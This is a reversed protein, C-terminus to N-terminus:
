FSPITWFGCNNTPPGTGGVANVIDAVYDPGLGKNQYAHDSWRGDPIVWTVQHLNCNQLDNLFPALNSHSEVVVDPEPTSGWHAGNCSGDPGTSHCIHSIANPATWISAAQDGYYRWSVNNADLLDTLTAHDYCPYKCHPDNPNATCDAEVKQPDILTALVSSSAICGTDENNGKGNPAGVSNEAAFDSYIPNIISSPASTGSFLFQHAPFSPGQSTQFMLNAFGYKTAIDLYPQIVGTSNDVYAYQTCDTETVGQPCANKCPCGTTGGCNGWQMPVDCAGDMYFGNKGDYTPLWSLMHSHDPDACDALPRDQLPSVQVQHCSGGTQPPVVNFKSPNNPDCGISTSCLASFLNDPTRNEQVIVVIHTPTNQAFTVTTAALALLLIRVSFKM